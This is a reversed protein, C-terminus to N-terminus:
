NKLRGDCGEIPHTYDGGADEDERLNRLDELITKGFGLVQPGKSEGNRDIVAAFARLKPM